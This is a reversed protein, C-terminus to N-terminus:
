ERRATRKGRFLRDVHYLLVSLAKTPTRQGVLVSTGLGASMALLGTAEARFDVDAAIEGAIQAEELKAILFQEMRDPKDFFAHSALSPDTFALVAYSTYVLHFLQSEDDTPLAEELVGELIARATAPKDMAQFRLSLRESMRKALHELAFLMLQEKTTFYYQILPVSIKAEAAVDRMSVAHLGQTSARRLLAEAIRKRQEDHDVKKPM